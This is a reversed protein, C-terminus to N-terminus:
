STWTFYGVDSLIGNNSVGGPKYGKDQWVQPMKLSSRLIMMYYDKRELVVHSRVTTFHNKYVLRYFSEPIVHRDDFTDESVSLASKDPSLKSVNEVAINKFTLLQFLTTYSGNNTAGRRVLDQFESLTGGFAEATASAGNGDGFYESSSLKGNSNNIDIYKSNVVKKDQDYAGLWEGVYNYSVDAIGDYEYGLEAHVGILRVTTGTVQQGIYDTAKNVAVKIPITAVSFKNSPNGNMVRGPLSIRPYVYLGGANAAKYDHDDNADKSPSTQATGSVTLKMTGDGDAQGTVVAIDGFRPDPDIRGAAITVVGNPLQPEVKATGVFEGKTGKGQSVRHTMGAPTTSANITPLTVKVNSVNQVATASVPMGTLLHPILSVLVDNYVGSVQTPTYTLTIVDGQRVYVVPQDVTGRANVVVNVQYLGTPNLPNSFGIDFTLTTVPDIFTALDGPVTFYAFPADGQSADYATLLPFTASHTGGLGDNATVTVNSTGPNSVTGSLTGTVSDYTLGSPLGAVTISLPDGDPDSATFFPLNTFTHGVPVLTNVGLGTVFPAHNNNTITWTFTDSDSATGDTVTVGISYSGASDAALWGSIVGTGPDIAVGPPLGTASYVLADMDADSATLSFSIPSDERDTRPPPPTLVPADNVPSVEIRVTAANSTQVGNTAYYVFSDTGNWNADPTYTFTGNAFTLSGNEPQIFSFVSLSGSMPNLDNSLVGFSVFEDEVVVFRDDLASPGDDDLVGIVQVTSVDTYELDSSTAIFALEVPQYGTASTNNTGSVTITQPVNWNAPTFTLSTSSLSVAINSSISVIVNATPEYDLAVDLTKGSGGETVLPVDTDGQVFISGFPNEDDLILLTDMGAPTLVHYTSAPTLTVVVTQSSERLSDDVVTVTITATAANAAFEVAGIGLGANSISDYDVGSTATGGVQYNVKLPNTLDGTRVLNFQGVSSNFAESTHQIAQVRVDPIPPAPPPSTPPPSAPPLISVPFNLTATDTSGNEYTANATVTITYSGTAAYTHQNAVPMTSVPPSYTFPDTNSQSDGWLYTMSLASMMQTSSVSGSVLIPSGLEVSAPMASM